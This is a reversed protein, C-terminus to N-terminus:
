LPRLMLPKRKNFLNEALKRLRAKYSPVFHMSRKMMQVIM